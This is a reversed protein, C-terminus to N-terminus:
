EATKTCLEDNQLMVNRTVMQQTQIEVSDNEPSQTPSMLQGDIACRYDINRRSSINRLISIQILYYSFELYHDAESM